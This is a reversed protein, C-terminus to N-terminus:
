TPSLHSSTTYSLSSSKSSSHHEGSHFTHSAEKWLLSLSYKITKQLHPHPPGSLLAAMQKGIYHKISLCSLGVKQTQREMGWLTPRQIIYNLCSYISTVYKRINKYLSLGPEVINYFRYQSIIKTYAICLQVICVM